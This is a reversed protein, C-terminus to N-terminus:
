VVLTLLNYIDRLKQRYTSNIKAVCGNKELHFLGCGLMSMYM